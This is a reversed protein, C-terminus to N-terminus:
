EGRRSGIAEAMGHTPAHRRRRADRARWPEAAPCLPHRSDPGFTAYFLSYVGGPVLGSSEVRVKTHSGAHKGKTRAQARSAPDFSRGGPFVGKAFSPNPMGLYMTEPVTPLVESCPISAVQKLAM